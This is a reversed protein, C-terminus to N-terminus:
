PKLDDWKLVTGGPLDRAARKGEVEALYRPSIGNGPRQIALDAREIREGAARSVRLVISKRATLRVDNEVPHPGKVSSGLALEVHRVAGIMHQFEDPELSAAHDPGPLRRDLTLHKELISAGLAAAAVPVEIGLSHDSYGVPLRFAQHLTDIARLNLAHYPAPYASTCHLLAVPPDGAERLWELAEEIEGLTAMGTSLIVPCRRAGVRRLLPMNTLDGSGIKYAPVPVTALFDVSEDDFPTSLFLIGRDEAHAALERFDEEHLELAKLMEVQSQQAEQDTVQYRAKPAAPSAISEARFTQFKVADAGADAAADILRHALDLRGNHNVGAEAIIFVPEDPGVRRTGIQFGM